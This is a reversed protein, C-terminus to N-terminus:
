RRRDRFDAFEAVLDHRFHVGTRQQVPHARARHQVRLSAREPKM